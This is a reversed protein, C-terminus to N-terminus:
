KKVVIFLEKKVLIRNYRLTGDKMIVFSIRESSQMVDMVVVLYVYEGM